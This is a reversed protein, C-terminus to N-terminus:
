AATALKKAKKQIAKRKSIKGAAIMEDVPAQHHNHSKKPYKFNLWQELIIAVTWEGRPIPAVGEVKSNEVLHFLDTPTYEVIELPSVITAREERYFSQTTSQELIEGTNILARRCVEFSLIATRQKKNLYYSITLAQHATDVQYGIIGFENTGLKLSKEKRKSKTINTTM